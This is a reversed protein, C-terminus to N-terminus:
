PDRLTVADVGEGGRFFVTLVSGARAHRRDSAGSRPVGAGRWSMRIMPGCLGGAQPSYRHDIRLPM